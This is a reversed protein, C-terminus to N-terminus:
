GLAELGFGEAELGFGRRRGGYRWAVLMVVGLLGTPEPVPQSFRYGQEYGGDQFAFVLDDTAFDRDGNWDGEAWTSNDALLDEYEGAAFVRVLDSSNFHGDWDTDGYWSDAIAHVLRERQAADTVQDIESPVLYTVYLGDPQISPYWIADPSTENVFQTTDIAFYDRTFGAISTTLVVPWSGSRQSSFDEAPGPQGSSNLSTIKLTFPAANESVIALSATQIQDWGRVGAAPRADSIEWQLVGGPYFQLQGDVRLHGVSAGPRLEAGNGVAVDNALTGNGSLTQGPTELQLPAPQGNWRVELSSGAPIVWSADVNVGAAVLDLRADNSDAILTGTIRLNSSGIGSDYVNRVRADIVSQGHIRIPGALHLTGLGNFSLTSDDQLDVPGNVTLSVSPDRNGILSLGEVSLPGSFVAEVPGTAKILSGGVLRM